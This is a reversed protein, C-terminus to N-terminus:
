RRDFVDDLCLDDGLLPRFVFGTVMAKTGKASGPVAPGPVMAIIILLAADIPGERVSFYAAQARVTAGIDVNKRKLKSNQTAKREASRITSASPWPAISAMERILPKRKTHMPTCNTILPIRSSTASVMRYAGTFAAARQNGCIGM